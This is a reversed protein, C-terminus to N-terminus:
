ANARGSIYDRPNTISKARRNLGIRQALRDFRDIGALLKDYVDRVRSGSATMVGGSVLNSTMLRILIEVDAIKRVYSRELTTLCTEGGLDAVRTAGFILALIVLIILLEQWGLSGLM